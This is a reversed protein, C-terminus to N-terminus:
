IANQKSWQINHSLWKITEHYKIMYDEESDAELVVSAIFDLTDVTTDLIKGLKTQDSQYYKVWPLPCSNELKILLSNLSPVLIFGYIMNNSLCLSSAKSSKLGAQMRIFEKGMDIGFAHLWTERLRPGAVRSAIECLIIQDDKTHFVELHFATDSPTPLAQLLSSAFSELRGKLPNDPAIIHSGLYNGQLMDICLSTYKSPWIELINKDRVFGDVHYMTGEVYSEIELDSYHFENLLDTSSLFSDFEYATRLLKVGLSGSGKRPKIVLPFTNDRMFTYADLPSFISRYTPTNIGNKSAIDKMIVKDRFAVASEYSQGELKLVSRLKGARLIDHEAPAIIWQFPNDQYLEIAKTEVEGYDFYNEVLKVKSYFNLLKCIEEEEYNSAPAILYISRDKLDSLIAQYPINKNNTIILYSEKMKRDNSVNELEMSQAYLLMSLWFILPYCRKLYYINNM